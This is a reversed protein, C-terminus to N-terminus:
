PRVDVWAASPDLQAHLFAALGPTAGLPENLAAHRTGGFYFTRHASGPVDVTAAWDALDVLGRRLRAGTYPFRNLLSFLTVVVSDEYACLLSSRLGPVRELNARYIEHFGEDVCRPCAHALADLGWARKLDDQAAMGLFPPRVLPSGDAVLAPPPQGVVAFAAAIQQYNGTIGVGGASFGALTIRQADQFTPVLRTLAHRLNLFGVHHLDGAGAHHTIRTGLHFDGTCHPVVVYSAARFPNAADGRDFIGVHDRIRPDLATAIPDAGVNRAAGGAACSIADYCIGGGQLFLLLESAGDLVNLALGGPSGDACRMEPLEIWIWRGLDEPAIAIPEGLEIPEDLDVGPGPDTDAGTGPDPAPDAGDEFSADCALLLTCLCAIRSASM